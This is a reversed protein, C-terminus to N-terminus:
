AAADVARAAARGRRLRHGLVLPIPAVAVAATLIALGVAGERSVTFGGVLALAAGALGSLLDNFGLLKGRESPSTLDGLEATAAVYSFSWGLGLGWLAVATGAVSTVWALSLTSVAIIALGGVLARERGFRDILNGVVLVLGYMGIIHASIIPFLNGSGHGHLHVVYGTLNMVSVMVSFSALASALAPVAGPRRLLARLPESGTPGADPHAELYLEAIRKPDPRVFLSIALGVLVFAGAALWPVTLQRADDTQGGFLPTFVFPGLIAGFVAGFLVLSIGRGRREPPYLDGAAGRALLVAGNAVGILVFGVIVLFAAHRHTGLATVGAGTAGLVFGGRIVPMRGFRDMLRGSVLASLAAAALTIAPGAGLLSAIGTVLVLTLTSVAAIMQQMGSNTTLCAALLVTNRVIPLRDLDPRSDISV